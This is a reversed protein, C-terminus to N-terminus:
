NQEDDRRPALWTVLDWANRIAVVLLATVCLSLLYVGHPARLWATATAVALAVYVAM